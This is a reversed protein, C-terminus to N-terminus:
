GGRRLAARLEARSFAGFALVAAAYVALGIAILAALAPYRWFPLALPTALPWAALLLAAAMVLSALAFRPLKHLFGDDARAADGLGRAGRWLLALNVWGALTTALAAASFGILPALGIAAAANVVMAWLAYRFPSATDERAFFVPQYVKQLVFAPLGAGYIAVALATEAVDQPGFAGRGFLVAVIPGPVVILALAAPLTLGLSFEAARNVAHRGGPGDGAQLRRALAPLLVVGVAVGVVGLPLQYLRDAMYLWAVAGDFYSAVQRGVVLNVQVVGGALAAPFAVVALRRLAPTLRPRRLRLAFGARAAARWVLALQALGALPVGWVLLTGHHIGALDAMAEGGIPALGALAGSEALALAAILVINLLVPAAAAAAFRGVANLVGSFLATLSIFLIYPFAVEGMATALAFRADDAFGSALALVLWPMALSAALTLIVLLTTLAALAEEAFARAAGPGEGELRRSFMPVFATNFAGEALFRRFLNPLTFAIVFAQAVPGAGLTAAIAIDRAFGLVRSAMTWGGVTFFASLLRIPGGSM